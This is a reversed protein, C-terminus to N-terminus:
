VEETGPVVAWNLGQGGCTNKWHNRGLATTNWDKIRVINIVQEISDLM